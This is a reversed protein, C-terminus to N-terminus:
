AAEARAEHAKIIAICLAIPVRDGKLVIEPGPRYTGGTEPGGVWDPGMLEAICEDDEPDYQATWTHRPFRSRVLSVADQLNTTYHLCKGSPYNMLRAIAMDLERSGETASQLKQLLDSM